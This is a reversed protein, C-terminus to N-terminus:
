EARHNKLIVSGPDVQVPWAAPSGLARTDIHQLFSLVSLVCYLATVLLNLSVRIRQKTFEGSEVSNLIDRFSSRQQRRDKKARYKNCETSLKKLEACLGDFGDGEFDQLAHM